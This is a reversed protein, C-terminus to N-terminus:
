HNVSGNKNNERDNKESYWTGVLEMGYKRM